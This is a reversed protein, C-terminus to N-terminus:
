GKRVNMTLFAVMLLALLSTGIGVSSSMLANANCPFEAEGSNTFCPNGLLVSSM